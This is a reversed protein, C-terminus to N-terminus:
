FSAKRAAGFREALFGRPVHFRAFLLAIALMKFFGMRRAYVRGTEFQVSPLDNCDDRVCNAGYVDLFVCRYRRRMSECLHADEGILASEGSVIRANELRKISTLDETEIWFPRWIAYLGTMGPGVVINSISLGILRWLGLPGRWTHRTLCSVFGIGDRGALRVAELVNRNVINDIDVTLILDNKAARFGERRVWAQHFSYESSKDVLIIRIRDSLGLCHSVRWIESVIEDIAPNDLCFIVEDPDLLSCSRLCDEILEIESHLPIVISFPRNETRIDM